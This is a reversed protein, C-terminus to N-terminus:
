ISRYKIVDPSFRNPILWWQTQWFISVTNHSQCDNSLLWMPDTSILSRNPPVWRYLGYMLPRNSRLVCVPHTDQVTCVSECKDEHLCVDASMNFAVHRQRQPLYPYQDSWSGHLTSQITKNPSNSPVYLRREAQVAPQWIEWNGRWRETTMNLDRNRMQM